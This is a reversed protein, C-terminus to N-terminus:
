FLIRSVALSRVRWPSPRNSYDNYARLYSAFSNTIPTSSSRFISLACWGGLDRDRICSGSRDARHFLVRHMVASKLLSLFALAVHSNIHSICEDPNVASRSAAPESRVSIVTSRILSRYSESQVFLIWSTHIRSYNELSRM